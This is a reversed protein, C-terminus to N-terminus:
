YLLFTMKPTVTLDQIKLVGTFHKFWNAGNLDEGKGWIDKLLNPDIDIGLYSNVVSTKKIVRASYLTRLVWCEGCGAELLDLPRGLRKSEEIIIDTIKDYRSIHAIEDTRWDAYFGSNKIDMRTNKSENINKVIQKRISPMTLRLKIKELVM